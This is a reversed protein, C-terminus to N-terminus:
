CRTHHSSCHRVRACLVMCVPVDWRHFEEQCSRGDHRAQENETHGDVAKIANLDDAYVIPNFGSKRVPRESDGFFINWLSPGWVTGQFVMDRLELAVSQAGDSVVNARRRQMWSVFVPTLAEPLGARAIKSAFREESVRDFAGKVDSSRSLHSSSRCCQIPWLM